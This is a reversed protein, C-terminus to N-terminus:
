TYRVGQFEAEFFPPLLADVRLLGATTLDIADGDLKVYGDAVYGQWQESFEELIEM